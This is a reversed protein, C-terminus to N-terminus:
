FEKGKEKIKEEREKKVKENLEIHQLAVYLSEPYYNYMLTLRVAAGTWEANKYDGRQPPGYLTTFFEKLSKYTYDKERGAVSMFIMYVRNEKRYNYVMINDLTYDGFKMINKDSISYADATDLVGKKNKLNYLKALSDITMGLQINKYGNKEDLDAVTQSMISSSILMAVAIVILIKQKMDTQKAKLLECLTRPSSSIVLKPLENHTYKRLPKKM